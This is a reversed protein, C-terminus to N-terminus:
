PPGGPRSLFMISMYLLTIVRAAISGTFLVSLIQFM